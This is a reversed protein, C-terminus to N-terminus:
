ISSHLDLKSAGRVCVLNVYVGGGGGADLIALTLKTKFPTDFLM